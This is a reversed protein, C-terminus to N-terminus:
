HGLLFRGAVRVNVAMATAITAQEVVFQIELDPRIKRMAKSDIAERYGTAIPVDVVDTVMEEYGLHFRSYFFWPAIADTIPSWLVTTGTGEPVLVMGVAVDILGGPAQTTDAFALLNGRARM